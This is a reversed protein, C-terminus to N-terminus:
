GRPQGAGVIIAKVWELNLVYALAHTVGERIRPDHLRISLPSGDAARINEQHIQVAAYRIGDEWYHTVFPREIRVPVDLTISVLKELYSRGSDDREVVNTLMQSTFEFFHEHVPRGTRAALAELPELFEPPGPPGLIYTIDV